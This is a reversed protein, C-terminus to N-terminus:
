AEKRGIGVIATGKMFGHGNGYKEKLYAIVRSKIEEVEKTTWSNMMQQLGPFAFLYDVIKEPSEYEWESEVYQADIHGFGATELIGRVGDASSWAPDFELMTFDPRVVKIFGTVDIWDGRKWASFSVVGGPMLVRKIEKMTDQANPLFFLVLGATVHSISADQIESMDQVNCLMSRVKKWPSSADAALLQAKRKGIEDLMAPSIDGTIITAHEPLATSYTKLLLNTVQGPGCGIDLITTAKSFPFIYNSEELM